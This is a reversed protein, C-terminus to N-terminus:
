EEAEFAAGEGFLLADLQVLRPYIGADSLRKIERRVDRIVEQRVQDHYVAIDTADATGGMEWVGPTVGDRGFKEANWRAVRLYTSSDPHDDDVNEEVFTLDGHKRDTM